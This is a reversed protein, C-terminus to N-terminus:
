TLKCIQYKLDSQDLLSPAVPVGVLWVLLRITAKREFQQITGWDTTFVIDGEEVYFVPPPSVFDAIREIIDAHIKDKLHGRMWLMRNTKYNGMVSAAHDLIANDNMRRTSWAATM